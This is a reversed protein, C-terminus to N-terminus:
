PRAEAGVSSILRKSLNQPGEDEVVNRLTGIHEITVEAVDGPKMFVPPKRAFGVGGMTGTAILDGPRFPMWRTVYEIIEAVSHIMESTNAKQMVQGNLRMEIDINQPDPVTDATVVWPGTAGTKEFNKGPNIQGRHRQYDRLCAENMCSYGFVYDLAKDATVYRGTDKGIVVLLEAEYDLEDSVKPRLIPQQHATLSEPWRAFIMPHEFETRAGAPKPANTERIHEHYNLGVCVIKGPDPVVPLLELDDYDFDGDQEAVIKDANRLGDGAIFEVLTRYAPVMRMTLDVVRNGKVAGYRTSGQYLYSVLKM